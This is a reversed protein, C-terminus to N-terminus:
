HKATKLDKEAEEGKEVTKEAFDTVDKKVKEFQNTINDILDEIKEKLDNTLEEGEHYIKRRTKRGKDPAFLVGLIAGATIGTLLGLLVKGTDM